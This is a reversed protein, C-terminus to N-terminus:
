SKLGSGPIPDPLSRAEGPCQTRTPPRLYEMVAKIFAAAAQPVIANGAGRLLGVRGPLNGCLPFLTLGDCWGQCDEMKRAWREEKDSASRWIKEMESFAESVDPTKKSKRWVGQVEGATKHAVKSSVGRLTDCPKRTQSGDLGWQYSSCSSTSHKGASEWLVRMTAEQIKTINQAASQEEYEKDGALKCLAVLLIETESFERQGRTKRWLTKQFAEEWLARLIEGPRSRTKEAYRTVKEKLKAYGEDWMPGMIASVGDSFLSFVSPEIEDVETPYRIGRRSPQDSRAPIPRIKGDRCPWFVVRDWRADTPASGGSESYVLKGYASATAASRAPHAPQRRSEQVCCGDRAHRQSRPSFPYGVRVAAWYLRQRIHHAGVGAACLDAAGVEYELAELDTRVAALWDRGDDSAVQEGFLVPPRCETVLRRFTPWLHREDKEGLKKGATSFPQCPLSATWVPEGGPWGAMQLALPWGGIGAFAHVQVYGRLMGPTVDRIDAQLVHAPPLHGDRILEHLWACADPAIDTYLTM